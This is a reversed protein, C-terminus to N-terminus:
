GSVHVFASDCDIFVKKRLARNDARGHIMKLSIAREELGGVVELGVAPDNILASSIGLLANLPLLLREKWKVHAWTGTLQM